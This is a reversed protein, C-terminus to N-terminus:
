QRPRQSVRYLQDEFAKQRILTTDTLGQVEQLGRQVTDMDARRAAAVDRWLQQVRLALERQQRTESDSVLRQVQRLTLGEAPVTLSAARVQRPDTRASAELQELRTRMAAMERRVEADDGTDTSAAAVVPVDAPRGWGTRVVVSSGDYRVELHAIASAAALVLVAAAALGWAPMRWSRRVGILPRPGRVIQFDLDHAPPVWEALRSRTAQFAAVDGRCDSCAGLHAEFARRRDAPLEDYVYAVLLEKDCM